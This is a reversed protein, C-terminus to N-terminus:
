TGRRTVQSLAKAVVAPSKSAVVLLARAPGQPQRRGQEWNQLTSVSVGIMRAFEAQSQHLKERIHRVDQAEFIFERSPKIEGRHIRGAEKISEVLEDFFENKM